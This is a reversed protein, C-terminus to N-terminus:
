NLSTISKSVHPATLTQLYQTLNMLQARFADAEAELTARRQEVWAEDLWQEELSLPPQSKLKAIRVQQQEVAEMLRLHEAQIVNLPNSEPRPGPREDVVLGIARMAGLDGMEYATMLQQWLQQHWESQYPNIDPHLRKVLVRYLRKREAADAATLPPADAAQAEKIKEAAEKIRQQWIFFETELWAEIQQLNPSQGQNVQGQILEIKRKARLVECRTQLAALEWPGLKQQFHSLLFPITIQELELREALLAALEAV